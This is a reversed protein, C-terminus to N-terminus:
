GKKLIIGQDGVCVGYGTTNDVWISRTRASGNGLFASFDISWTTPGTKSLIVFKNDGSNQAAAYVLGFGGKISPINGVGAPLTGPTIINSNITSTVFKDTSHVIVAGSSFQGGLYLNSDSTGWIERIAMTNPTFAANLGTVLDAWSGNYYALETNGGTTGSTGVFIDNTGFGFMFSTSKSLLNGSDGLWTTGEDTTHNFRSSAGTVWIDTSSNAWLGEIGTLTGFAKTTAPTWTTGSNHTYYFPVSNNVWAYVHGSDSGTVGIFNDTTGSTQANWNYGDWHLITGSDGVAYINNSSFGYVANINNSTGSTQQVWTLINLTSTNSTILGLTATINTTGTTISTALGYADITAVGTSSSNWNVVSSINQTYGDNYTGIATFQETTLSFLNPNVPTIAISTLVDTITLLTYGDIIGSTASITATGSHITAALGSSNITASSPTDSGWTVASTIDLTTGDNYHGTATFQQTNPYVVSPTIPTVIINQLTRTVFLNTNGSIIGSTATIVSTGHLLTTALGYGDITAISTSGSSWIVSNTIDQTYGDNYNATATFQQTNPYAVSPNAPTISISQLTNTITITTNNHIAGLTATITTTGHFVSSALGISGFTNSITAISPFSSSWTVSNTINQTSSDSYHGTAIFQQTNPYAITPTLPSIDISLLTPAITLFTSGVISGLTSTIITNGSTSTATALGYADITAYITNSSAWTVNNTIDTTTLDNYHGIAAFQQQTLANITTNAPMISISELIRTVNVPTSGSLSLYTSEITTSGLNNSTFLGNNTITGITHNITNWTATNTIDISFGSSYILSASYQQTIGAGININAPNIDIRAPASTIASFEISLPGIVNNKDVAAIKYYFITNEPLNTHYYIIGNINSIIISNNITVGSTTKYYINYSIANPVSDWFLKLTAM